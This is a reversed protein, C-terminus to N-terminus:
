EKLQKGPQRQKTKPVRQLNGMESTRGIPHHALHQWEAKRFMKPLRESPMAMCHGKWDENAIWFCGIWTQIVLRSEGGGNFSQQTRSKTDSCDRQLVDGM